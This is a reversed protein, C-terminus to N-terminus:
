VYKAVWFGQLILCYQLICLHDANVEAALSAAVVAPLVVLGWIQEKKGRGSTNGQAPEEPLNEAASELLLEGNPQAQFPKTQIECARLGEPPPRPPHQAEPASKQLWSNLPVNGSARCSRM